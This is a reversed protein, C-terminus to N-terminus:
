QTESHRLEGTAGDRWTKLDAFERQCGSCLLLSGYRMAGDQDRAVVRRYSTAGCYGCRNVPTLDSTTMTPQKYLFNDRLLPFDPGLPLARQVPPVVCLRLSMCAYQGVIYPWERTRKPSSALLEETPRPVPEVSPGTELTNADLVTKEYLIKAHRHM